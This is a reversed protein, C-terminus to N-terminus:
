RSRRLGIVLLAGVLAAVGGWRWTPNALFGGGGKCDSANDDEGRFSTNSSHDHGKGGGGGCPLDPDSGDDDTPDSAVDTAQQGRAYDEADEAIGQVKGGATGELVAVEEKATVEGGAPDLTETPMVEPLAAPPDPLGVSRSNGESAAETAAAAGAEDEAESGVATAATATSGDEAMAGAQESSAAPVQATPESSAALSAAAIVSDDSDAVSNEPVIAASSRAPTEEEEEEEEEDDGERPPTSPPTMSNTSPQQQAAASSKPPKEQPFADMESPVSIPEPHQGGSVIDAEATAAVFSPPHWEAADASLRPTPAPTFTVRGCANYTSFAPFM